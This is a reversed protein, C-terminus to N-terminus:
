AETTRCNGSVRLWKSDETTKNQLIGTAAKLFFVPREQMTAAWLRKETKSEPLGEFNSAITGNIESHPYSVVDMLKPDIGRGPIM